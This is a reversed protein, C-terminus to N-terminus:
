NKNIIIIEKINLYAAYLNLLPLMAVVLEFLIVESQQKSTIYGKNLYEKELIYMGTAMSIAAITFHILLLTEM